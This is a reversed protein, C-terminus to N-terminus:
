TYRSRDAPVGKCISGISYHLLAHSCLNLLLSTRGVSLSNSHCLVSNQLQLQAVSLEMARSNVLLSSCPRTVAGFMCSCEGAHTTSVRSLHHGCRACCISFVCFTLTHKSHSRVCVRAVVVNPICDDSGAVHCHLPFLATGLVGPIM